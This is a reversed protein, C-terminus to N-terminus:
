LYIRSCKWNLVTLKFDMLLLTCSTSLNIYGVWNIEWARLNIICNCHNYLVFCGFYYWKKFVLQIYMEQFLHYICVYMCVKVNFDYLTKETAARARVSVVSSQSKEVVQSTSPSSKSLGNQFIGSGSSGVSFYKVHVIQTPNRVHINQTNLPVSCISSSSITAMLKQLLYIRHM